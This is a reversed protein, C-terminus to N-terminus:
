AFIRIPFNLINYKDHVIEIGMGDGSMQMLGKRSLLFAPNGSFQLNMIDWLMSPQSSM